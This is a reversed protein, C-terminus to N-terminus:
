FQQQPESTLRPSLVHTSLNLVPTEILLMQKKALNRIEQDVLDEQVRGEWLLWMPTVSLIGVLVFQTVSFTDLIFPVAGHLCFCLIVAMWGVVFVVVLTMLGLSGVNKYHARREILTDIYALQEPSEWPVVNRLYDEECWPSHFTHSERREVSSEFFTNPETGLSKRTEQTVALQCEMVGGSFKNPSELDQDNKNALINTCDDLSVYPTRLEEDVKM